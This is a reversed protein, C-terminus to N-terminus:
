KLLIRGDLPPITIRTVTAGNNVGPDQTGQLAKFTGGLDVTITQTKSSNLLAIGNDFDRRWVPSGSAIPAGATRPYGLNIDYEDFYTYYKWGGHLFSGGSMLAAALGFRMAQLTQYAKDSNPSEDAVIKNPVLTFCGTDRCWARYRQVFEEFSLWYEGQSLAELDTEFEMGDISELYSYAKGQRDRLPGTNGNLHFRDPYGAVSNATLIANPMVARLKQLFEIRGMEFARDREQVPDARGDLDLDLLDKDPMYPGYVYSFGRWTSDMFAGDFLLLDERWVRYHLQVLLDVTAPNALNFVPYDGFAYAIKGSATRVFVKRYLQPDSPDNDAAELAACMSQTCGYTSFYQTLLKLHPNRKRAETLVRTDFPVRGEGPHINLIFVSLKLLKELTLESWNGWRPWWLTFLRPYPPNYPQLVRYNVQRTLAYPQTPNSRPAAKVFFRHPQDPQLAVTFRHTLGDSYSASLSMEAFPKDSTDARVLAPEQTTVSFTISNAGAPLLRSFPTIPSLRPDAPETLPEPAIPPAEPNPAKCAATGLMFGAALLGMTSIRIFRLLRQLQTFVLYSTVKARTYM